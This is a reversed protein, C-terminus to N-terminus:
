LILYNYTLLLNGEFMESTWNWKQDDGELLYRNNFERRVKRIKFTKGAQRKMDPSILCNDLKEFNALDSRIKVSDGVKYKM